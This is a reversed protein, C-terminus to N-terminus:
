SRLGKLYATFMDEFARRDLSDDIQWEAAMGRLLAGSGRAVERTPLMFSIGHREAMGDIARAVADMFRERAVRLREKLEPHRSAHTSFESILAWWAPERAYTELMFRAVSRFTEEVGSGALIIEEYAEARAAYHKELVAFFLDDKGDFNSYVAGKTYGAEEAIDELSAAHFGRELFAGRAAAVLEDRTRAKSAVRSLRTSVM